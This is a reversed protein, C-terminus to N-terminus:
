FLFQYGLNVYFRKYDTPTASQEGNLIDYGKLADIGTEAEVSVERSFRYETRSSLQFQTVKRENLTVYTQEKPDNPDKIITERTTYTYQVRGRFDVRWGPKWPTRILGYIAASKKEAGATMQTSAMVLDQPQWVDRRIYQSSLQADYGSLPIFPIESQKAIIVDPAGAMLGPGSEYSSLTFTNLWQTTKNLTTTSGLTFLTTSGAYARALQELESQTYVHLGNEARGADIMEAITTPADAGTELGYVRAAQIANTTFMIPNTRRDFHFDFKHKTSKNWTFHATLFNVKKYYADVDILSYFIYERTYYRADSGIAARDVMGSEIRQYNAYTSSKWNKWVGDTDLRGGLMPRSVLQPTNFHEYDVLAGAVGYVSYKESLRYGLEAGDFRGLVGSRSSMRGIAAQRRDKRGKYEAYFSRVRGYKSGYYASIDERLDKERDYGIDYSASASLKLERNENRRRETLSLNSVTSAQFNRDDSNDILNAFAFQSLRGFFNHQTTQRAQQEQEQQQRKGKKLERKPANAIRVNLNMLRQKVMSARPTKEYKKLYDEYEQKAMDLQGNRERALGVFEKAAQQQEANGENLLRSFFLIAQENEGRTLAQKGAELLEEKDNIAEPTVPLAATQNISKRIKLTVVNQQESKEVQYNTVQEFRIVLFPGGRVNGEYFVDRLPVIGQEPLEASERLKYQEVPLGKDSPIIQIQVIKGRSSPFHRVYDMEHAFRVQMQVFEDNLNKFEVAQIFEGAQVLPAMLLAFFCVSIVHTLRFWVRQKIQTQIILLSM